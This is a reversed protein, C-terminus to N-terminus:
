RSVPDSSQGLLNSLTHFYNMHRLPQLKFVELYNLYKVAFDLIFKQCSLLKTLNNVCQEKWTYKLSSFWSIESDETMSDSLSSIIVRTSSNDLRIWGVTATDLWLVAEM